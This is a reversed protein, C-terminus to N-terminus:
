VTQDAETPQYSSPIHSSVHSMPGDEVLMRDLSSDASLGAHSAVCHNTRETGM